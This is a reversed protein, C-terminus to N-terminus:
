RGRRMEDVVARIYSIDARMEELTRIRQEHDQVQRAIAQREASETGQAWAASMIPSAILLILGLVIQWMQLVVPVRLREGM